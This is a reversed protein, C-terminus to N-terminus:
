EIIKDKEIKEQYNKFSIKIKQLYQLANNFRAEQDDGKTNKFIIKFILFNKVKNIEKSKDEKELLNTISKSM